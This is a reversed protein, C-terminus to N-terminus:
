FLKSRSGLPSPYVCVCGYICGWVCVCARVCLFLEGEQPVCVCVIAADVFVAARVTDSHTLATIRRGTCSSDWGADELPKWRWVAGFANNWYPGKCAIAKYLCLNQPGWASFVHLLKTPYLFWCIFLPIVVHVNRTTLYGLSGVRSQRWLLICSSGNNQRTNGGLPATRFYYM